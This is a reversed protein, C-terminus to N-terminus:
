RQFTPRLQTMEEDSLNHAPIYQSALPDEGTQRIAELGGSTLGAGTIERVFAQHLQDFTPTQGAQAYQAATAMGFLGLHKREIPTGHHNPDNYAKDGISFLTDLYTSLSTSDFKKAWYLYFGSFADAELESTQLVESGFYGLQRQTQHGWEHALIGYISYANNFKGYVNRFLHTGFSIQPSDRLSFANEHSDDCEDYLSVSVAQPLGSWFAQQASVENWFM